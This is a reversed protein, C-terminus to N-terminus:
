YGFTRIANSPIVSDQSSLPDLAVDSIKRYAPLASAMILPVPKSLRFM